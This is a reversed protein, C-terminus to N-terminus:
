RPVQERGADPCAKAHALPLATSNIHAEVCLSIFTHRCQYSKRYPIGSKAMIAQWPRNAFNHQDIFKGRPSRFIFAEPDITESKIDELIVKVEPTIPFDRKRQTKLGEKLVLGQKSVVVAQRFRIVSETIHKWQLGIAESPRAGTFFLFRM